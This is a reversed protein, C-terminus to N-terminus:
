MYGTIKLSTAVELAMMWVMERAVLGNRCKELMLEL